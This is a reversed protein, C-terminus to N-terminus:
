VYPTTPLTLHTYSVAIVNISGVNNLLELNSGLITIPLSKYTTEFSSNFNTAYIEKSNNIYNVIEQDLKIPRNISGPSKPKIFLDAQFSYDTWKLLSSEFSKVFIDM